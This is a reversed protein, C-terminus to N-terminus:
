VVIDVWFGTLFGSEDAILGDGYYSLVFLHKVTGDDVVTIVIEIVKSEFGKLSTVQQSRVTLYHFSWLMHQHTGGNTDVAYIKGTSYLSVIKHTFFPKDM